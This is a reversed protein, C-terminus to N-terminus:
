MGVGSSRGGPEGTAPLSFHFTAGPGSNATAWVRGGHSEVISRTIALGLGTGQPNPTVFPDVIEDLHEAPLGIGTDRISVELDGNRARRSVITLEGGTDKMAEIANLLLHMLVQQLEVRDALVAPVDETLETRIAIPYPSAEHRFLTAMERILANVHVPERRATERHELAASRNVIEDAWRASKLLRSAARRAEELNVRDATLSRLCTTADILAASIPQRMEHALSAALAGVISARRRRDLAALAIRRAAEARKRETIERTLSISMRRGGRVFARVRVEVSVMTGDSRRHRNEFTLVEGADLRDRAGRFFGADLDVSFALPSMGILEDRSHGLDECAQRNADLIIGDEDHLMLGDAAYEVLMRHLAASARLERETRTRDAPGVATGALETGGASGISDTEGGPGAVGERVPPHNDVAPIRNAFSDHSM